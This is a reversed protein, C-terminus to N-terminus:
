WLITLVYESPWECDQVRNKPTIGLNELISYLQRLHHIIAGAALDLREVVSKVKSEAPPPTCLIALNQKSAWTRYKEIINKGYDAIDRFNAYGNITVESEVPGDIGREEIISLVHSFIHHTFERMPRKRQPTSWDLKEDPMQRVAREVAELAREILPITESPGRPLTKITSELAEMIENPNFGPIAKNAILTVPL